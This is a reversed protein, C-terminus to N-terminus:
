YAWKIEDGDSQSYEYTFDTYMNELSNNFYADSEDGNDNDINENLFFDDFNWLGFNSCDPIYPPLLEKNQM